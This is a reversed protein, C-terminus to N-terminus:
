RLGNPHEYSVQVATYAIARPTFNTMGNAIANGRSGRKYGAGKLAASPGM